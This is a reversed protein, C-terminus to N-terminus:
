IVNLMKPRFANLRFFCFFLIVNWNPSFLTAVRTMPNQMYFRVKVYVEYVDQFFYKISDENHGSHLLMFKINGATLFTSVQQNNVKAIWSLPFFM